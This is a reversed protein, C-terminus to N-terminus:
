VDDINTHTEGMYVAVGTMCGCVRQRDQGDQKDINM